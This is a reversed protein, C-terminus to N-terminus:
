KEAKRCSPAENLTFIVVEEGTVTSIDHHMSVMKVGTIVQIMSEIQLRATEILLTRMQKLLDRGQEVPCTKVLQQEAATLVGQLRVLLLEGILHSQVDSPGRGIYEQEFRCMGQSVAAELEGRTKMPTKQTGTAVSAPQRPRVPSATEGGKRRACFEMLVMAKLPEREFPKQMQPVGALDPRLQGVDYGSMIIFPIDRDRLIDVVPYAYQGGLNVDLLVGDLTENRALEEAERLRAAIGVVVCGLAELMSKLATAVMGVDEVVLIRLGTPMRRRDTEISGQPSERDPKTTTRM